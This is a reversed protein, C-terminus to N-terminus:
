SSLSTTTITITITTITTITTKTTTITPLVPSGSSVAVEERRRGKEGERLGKTEGEGDLRIWM